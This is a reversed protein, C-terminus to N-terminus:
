ANKYDMQRIVPDDESLFIKHMKGERNSALLMIGFFAQKNIM